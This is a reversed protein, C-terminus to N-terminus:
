AIMIAKEFVFNNCYPKKGEVQHKDFDFLSLSLKETGCIFYGTYGLLQLFQLTERVQERGVHRAECEFIVSPKYTGLIHAGGKFVRLENGEVDIKLFDPVINNKECYTDLTETAVDEKIGYEKEGQPAITAGPSTFKGKGAPIFLTVSGASDSLALHEITVNDWHFLSKLRVIYNYL